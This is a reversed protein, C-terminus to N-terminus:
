VRKDSLFLSFKPSKFEKQTYIGAPGGRWRQIESSEPPLFEALIEQKLKEKIASGLVQIQHSELEEQSVYARHPEAFADKVLVKEPDLGMGRSIIKMQDYASLKPKSRISLDKAAYIKRLFEAGKMQVDHYTDITHGMMYDIYDPQVGLSMLQTKFFKRLSHVKLEYGRESPTLLGAKFYLNHILKYIQKEGIPRPIKSRSDRILPSDDHIKEPPIKRDPAGKCRDNLYLKLFEAAEAGLFTDYDHYKGKTIEIEVHIHIPIIGAEIDHKVHKYRLKTLTGERFGGLALMSTIVKERLDAIELLKTLEEPTPARDKVVSKRSLPHPLAISIRNVRYLTKIAKMYNTVRGPSLGSDQLEAIYDELAKTHAQIRDPKLAGNGDMVDEILEDPTKGVRKSYRWIRDTYGYLSGPSGSRYRLFYKALEILSQNELVFPILVPRQSSLSVLVYEILGKQGIALIEDIPISIEKKLTFGKASRKLHFCEGKIEGMNQIFPIDALELTRSSFISDIDAKKEIAVM